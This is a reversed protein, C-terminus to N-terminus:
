NKWNSYDLTILEAKKIEYTIADGFVCSERILKTGSYCGNTFDSEIVKQIVFNDYIEEYKYYVNSAMMEAKISQFEVYNKFESHYRDNYGSWKSYKDPTKKPIPIEDNLYPGYNNTSWLYGYEDQWVDTKYDLLTLNVSGAKQPYLKGAKSVNTEQIPPENFSDGIVLIGDNMYNTQANRSNDMANIAMINYKPQDRYVYELTIQLCNDKGVYGCDVISTTANLIDILNNNNNNEKKIKEIEAGVIWIEVLTQADSLPSRVEPMGMGFQALRINNVGRNEYMKVIVTNTQNTIVTILPFETHYDTVDTTNGNFIFGDSVLLIGNKNKGFTPPTCDNCGGGSTSEDEEDHLVLSTIQVGDGARNTSIAYIINNSTFTHINFINGLETFGDVGNIATDGATINSPDSLNVIQLGSDPVSGVIAYPVGSVTFTALGGAQDLVTFGNADDTEADVAVINTPDNVNIIQIGDDDVSTVIAYVVNSVTFTEVGVAGDLVTFGNADDTEADTAVINTPDRLDIIQVGDDIEAVVIAYPFGGVTFTGVDNASGLEDFGNVGDFEEDLAVIDTPDTMNIIQVGSLDYSTVIAYPKDDVTFIAVDNAGDLADFGNFGHTEADTAVINSTDTVNIIQVGDDVYSAVIAYTKDTITFIAVNTAGDLETFGNVGDTAADTATIDSPNSLNIIQVGDGADSAVIAYVIGSITFTEVGYAGDLETFGNVGDTEADTATLEIHAAFAVNLSLVLMMVSCFLLISKKM